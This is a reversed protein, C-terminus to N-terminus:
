AARLIPDVCKEKQPKYMQVSFTSQFIHSRKQTRKKEGSRSGGGEGTIGNRRPETETKWEPGLAFRASVSVCM